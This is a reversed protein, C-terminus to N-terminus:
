GWLGELDVSLAGALKGGNRPQPLDSGLKAFAVVSRSGGAKGALNEQSFGVRERAARLRRERLGGGM